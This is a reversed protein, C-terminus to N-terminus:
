QATPPSRRRVRIMTIGGFHLSGIVSNFSIKACSRVFIAKTHPETAISIAKAIAARHGMPDVRPALAGTSRVLIRALAEDGAAAVVRQDARFRWAMAVQRLNSRAM